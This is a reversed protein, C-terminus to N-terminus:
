HKFTSVGYSLLQRKLSAESDRLKEQIAITNKLREKLAANERKLSERELENAMSISNPKLGENSADNDLQVGSHNLFPNRSSMSQALIKYLRSIEEDVKAEIIRKANKLRSASAEPIDISSAAHNTADMQQLLDYAVHIQKKIEDDNHPEKSNSAASIDALSSGKLTSAASHLSLGFPEPQINEASSINSKGVIEKTTHGHVHVDENQSAFFDQGSPTRTFNTYNPISERKNIFANRM